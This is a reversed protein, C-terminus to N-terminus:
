ALMMRIRTDRYRRTPQRLTQQPRNWDITPQEDDDFTDFSDTLTPNDTQRTGTLQPRTNIPAPRNNSPPAPSFSSHFNPQQQQQFQPRPPRRNDQEPSRVPSQFPPERTTATSLRQGPVTQFTQFIATNQLFHRSEIPQRNSPRHGGHLQAGRVPVPGHNLHEFVTRQANANVPTFHM